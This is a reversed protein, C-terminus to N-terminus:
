LSQQCHARGQAAHTRHQLGAPRRCHVAEAWARLALGLQSQRVTSHVDSGVHTCAAKDNRGVPRSAAIGVVACCLQLLITRVVYIHQSCSTAALAMFHTHAMGGATVCVPGLGTRVYLTCKCSLKCSSTCGHWPMSRHVHIRYQSRQVHVHRPMLQLKSESDFLARPNSCRRHQLEM